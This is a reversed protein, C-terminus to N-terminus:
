MYPCACCQPPNFSDLLLGLEMCHLFGYNCLQWLYTTCSACTIEGWVTSANKEDSVYVVLAVAPPLYKLTRILEILYFLRLKKSLITQTSVLSSCCSGSILTPVRTQSTLLKFCYNDVILNTIDNYWVISHM